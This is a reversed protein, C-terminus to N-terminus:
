WESGIPGLHVWGVLGIYRKNPGTAVFGIYMNRHSGVLTWGVICKLWWVRGVGLPGHGIGFWRQGVFGRM